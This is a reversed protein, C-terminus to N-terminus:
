YPCPQICASFFPIKALVLLGQSPFSYATHGICFNLLWVRRFSHTKQRRRGYRSFHKRDRSIAPPPSAGRAQLRRPKNANIFIYLFRQLPLYLIFFSLTCEVSSEAEYKQLFSKCLFKFNKGGHTFYKQYRM